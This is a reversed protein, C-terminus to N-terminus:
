VEEIILGDMMEETLMETDFDLNDPLYTVKYDGVLWYTCPENHPGYVGNYSRGRDEAICMARRLYYWSQILPCPDMLEAEDYKISDVVDCMEKLTAM